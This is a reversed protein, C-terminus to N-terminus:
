AGSRLLARTSVVRPCEPDPGVRGHAFDSVIKCGGRCVASLTCSACPEAPAAAYDRLRRHCRSRRQLIDSRLLDCPLGSREALALAEDFLAVATSLSSLKYRCVALRYLVDALELDSYGGREVLGRARQLLEIAEKVQGVEQLAWAEGSLVRLELSRAGTGTVQPAVERYAEVAEDYRNPRTICNAFNPHFRDPTVIPKFLDM